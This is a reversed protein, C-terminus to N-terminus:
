LHTKNKQFNFENSHIIKIITTVFKRRTWIAKRRFLIMDYIIIFNIIPPHFITLSEKPIELINFM